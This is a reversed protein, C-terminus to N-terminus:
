EQLNMQKIQLATRQQNSLWDYITSKAEAMKKIIDQEVGFLGKQQNLYANDSDLASMKERLFNDQREDESAMQMAKFSAGSGVFNSGIQRSQKLLDGMTRRSSNLQKERNFGIQEITNRFQQNINSTLFREYDEWNERQTAELMDVDLPNFYEGYEGGGLDFRGAVSEGSGFLRPDLGMEKLTEQFDGLNSNWDEPTWSDWNKQGKKDLNTKTQESTPGGFPNNIMGEGNWDAM